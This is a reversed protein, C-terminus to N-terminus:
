PDRGAAEDRLDPRLFGAQDGITRGGGILRRAMHPDTNQGGSHQDDAKANQTKPDILPLDRRQKGCSVSQRCGIDIKDRSAWSRSRRESWNRCACFISATPWSVPPMACSKLLISAITIPLRSGRSFAARGRRCLAIGRLQHVAGQFARRARGFRVSDGRPRKGGAPESARGMSGFLNTDPRDSRSRSRKAFCDLDLDHEGATQPLRM